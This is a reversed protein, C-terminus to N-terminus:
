CDPGPKDDTLGPKAARGREASLLVLVLNALISLEVGLHKRQAM